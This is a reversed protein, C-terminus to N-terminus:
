PNFEPMERKYITNENEVSVDKEDKKNIIEDADNKGSKNDDSNSEQQPIEFKEDTADEATEKQEKEGEEDDNNKNEGKRNQMAEILAALPVKDLSKDPLGLTSAICAKTVAESAEGYNKSILDSVIPLIKGSKEAERILCDSLSESTIKCPKNMAAILIENTGATMKICEQKMHSSVQPKLLMILPLLIGFYNRIKSFRILSPTPQM